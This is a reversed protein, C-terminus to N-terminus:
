AERDSKLTVAELLATNYRTDYGAYMGHGAGDIEVLRGNRLLATTPRGTLELPTSADATGHIVMVPLALGTLDPRLDATSFARQTELLVPLPTDMLMRRTSDILTASVSATAFYAATSEDIWAGFDTLWQVRQAEFMEDPVGVPNDSLVALCPSVPASLVVAATHATGHRALYRLVQQAGASHGVLVIDNLNLTDIVAHLDDASTNLDYGTTAIESRGHGRRDVLVCSRGAAVLRPVQANWMRSSLGWAHCLVVPPGDGWIEVYLSTGDAAKVVTSM